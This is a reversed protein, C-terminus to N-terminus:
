YEIVEILKSIEQLHGEIDQELLNVYKKLPFYSQLTEFFLFINSSNIEIDIMLNRNTFIHIM